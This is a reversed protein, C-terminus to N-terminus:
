LTADKPYPSLFNYIEHDALPLTLLKQTLLTFNIPKKKFNDKISRPM